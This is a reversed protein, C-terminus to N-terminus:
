ALLDRFHSSGSSELRVAPRDRDNEMKIRPQTSNLFNPPGQYGRSIDVLDRHTPPGGLAIIQTNAFHRTRNTALDDAASRIELDAIRLSSNNAVAQAIAEDVTLVPVCSDPAFTQDAALKQPSSASDQAQALLDLAVFKVAWLITRTIRQM